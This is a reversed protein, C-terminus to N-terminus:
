WSTCAEHKDDQLGSNVSPFIFAPAEPPESASYLHAFLAKYEKWFYLVTRLAESILILILACFLNCLM